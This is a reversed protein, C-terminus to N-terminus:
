RSDRHLDVWLLQSGRLRRPRESLGNLHDVRDRDFLISSASEGKAVRLDIHEDSTM